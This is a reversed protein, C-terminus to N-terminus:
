WVFFFFDPAVWVDVTMGFRCILQNGMRKGDEKRQSGLDVMKEFCLLWLRWRGLRLM